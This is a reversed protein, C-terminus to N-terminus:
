AAHQPLEKDNDEYSETKVYVRWTVRDQALCIWYLYEM